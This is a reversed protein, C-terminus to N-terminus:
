MSPSSAAPSAPVTTLHLASLGTLPIVIEVPKGDNEGQLVFRLPGPTMPFSLSGKASQGPELRLPLRLQRAAFEQRMKFAEHLAEGYFFPTLVFGYPGAGYTAGFLEAAFPAVIVLKLGDLNPMKPSVPVGAKQYARWDDRSRGALKDSDDGWRRGHDLLDIVTASEVILVAPSQNSVTLTYEDWWRATPPFPHSEGPAIITHLTIRAAPHTGVLDLLVPAPQHAVPPSPRASQRPTACGALVLLIMLRVLKLQSWVSRLGSGCLPVLTSGTTARCNM